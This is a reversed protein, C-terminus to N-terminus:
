RLIEDALILNHELAYITIGPLTTLGLKEMVHRRHSIVTNISIYLKQAVKKNTYGKAVLKLVELERQTLIAGPLKCLNKQNNGFLIKGLERHISANDSLELCKINQTDCFPCPGLVIIQCTASMMNLRSLFEKNETKLLNHDIILADFSPKRQLLNKLCDPTKVEFLFGDAGLGQLLCKIANKGFWNESAIGIKLEESM